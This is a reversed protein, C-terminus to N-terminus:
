RHLSFLLVSGEYFDILKRADLSSLRRLITVVKLYNQIATIVVSFLVLVVVGHHSVM